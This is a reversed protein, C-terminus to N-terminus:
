ICKEPFFCIDDDWLDSSLHDVSFDEEEYLYKEQMEDECFIGTVLVTMDDRIQGRSQRICYMLIQNALENPNDYQLRGILEPLMDEGVGQALADLIGDSFMIIYDGSQLTRQIMNFDARGLVGIPLNESSIREVLNGRKIYTCAAGMKFFSCEANYLNIECMDMTSASQEKGAYFVLGNIMQLASEIRFGADVMNEMMGIVKESDNSAKEGSGMGDSLMTFINGDKSKYFSYNDGSVTETEKVARAVGSFSRYKPQEIFYYTTWEGSLYMPSSESLNLRVELLVSLFDTVDTLQEMNMETCGFIRGKAKKMVISFERHGDENEIEMFDKILIGSDKMYKVIQRYKRHRIPHCQWSSDAVSNLIYSMERMQGALVEKNDKSQKRLMYEQNKCIENEVPSQENEDEEQFLNALECFSEAYEQLKLKGYEHIIFQHNREKALTKQRM